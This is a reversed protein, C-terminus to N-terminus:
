AEVTKRRAKRLKERGAAEFKKQEADHQQAEQEDLSAFLEGISIEPRSSVKKLIAGYLEAIREITSGDFLNPNYMWTTSPSTEPDNVFMVLDFRSSTSVGLPKLELGGFRQVMPPTNQMVFLVQVLPNHGAKREPRLEEVLKEFPIDQNAMAQLSTERVQQLLDTFRSSLDIKARMPLLNVFFGILTETELQTRNALDTGIVVDRQGAWRSILLQFATLLTMYFTAHERRGLLRLEKVLEAPLGQRLQAGWFFEKPNRPRDLPLELAPPAGDLQKRWYALQHELVGSSLFKRQWAAYDAYQITLEPLPSPKGQRIAEYLAALEHSFVGLSWRDSIIHHTSVILAHDNEGIKILLARILPGTSLDFPKKVEQAAQKRAEGEREELTHRHSVDAMAM